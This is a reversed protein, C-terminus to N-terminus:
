LKLSKCVNYSKDKSSYYRYLTDYLKIAEESVQDVAQPLLKEDAAMQKVVNGFKSYPPYNKELNQSYEKAKKMINIGSNIKSIIKLDKIIKLANESQEISYDWNMELLERVSYSEEIDKDAFKIKNDFNFGAETLSSQYRDHIKKYENLKEKLPSFNVKKFIPEM